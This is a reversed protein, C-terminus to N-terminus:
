EFDGSAEPVPCISFTHAFVWAPRFQRWIV